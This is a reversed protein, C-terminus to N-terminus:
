VRERLKIFLIYLFSRERLWNKSRYRWRGIGFAEFVGYGDANPPIGSYTKEEPDSETGSFDSIECVGKEESVEIHKIKEGIQFEKDKALIYKMEYSKLLGSSPWYHKDYFVYGNFSAAFLTAASALFSGSLVNAASIVLLGAILCGTEEIIGKTERLGLDFFNRAVAVACGILFIFFGILSLM